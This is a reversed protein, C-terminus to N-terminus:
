QYAQAINDNDAPQTTYIWWRNKPHKHNRAQRDCYITMVVPPDTLIKYWHRRLYMEKSGSHCPGSSKWKAIIEAIRYTDNRWTFSQPLGPEGRLMGAVDATGPIPTIAQGVFEEPNAGSM